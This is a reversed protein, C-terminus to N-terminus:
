LTLFILYLQPQPQSMATCKRGFFYKTKGKGITILNLDRGEVSKGVIKVTFGNKNKLLKILPTIDLHKFRRHTLSKEKYQEYTQYLHNEFDYNQPM